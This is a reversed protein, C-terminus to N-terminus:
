NLERKEILLAVIVGFAIIALYLSIILGYSMNLKDLVGLACVSLWSIVSIAGCAFAMRRTTREKRVTFFNNNLLHPWIHKDLVYGNVLLMLLISMKALFKASHAYKEIDSFFITIGSLVIAILSYFVINKLISLTYIETSNLKKDKSFFNFLLDSVLAGGMGFVVAIVHVVTVPIKIHQFFELIEM